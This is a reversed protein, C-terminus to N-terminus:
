TATTIFVPFPLREPVVMLAFPTKFMCLTWFTWITRLAWLTLFTWLTWMTLHEFHWSLRSHWFRGCHWFHGCQRFDGFRGFFGCHQFHIWHRFHRFLGLYGTSKQLRSNFHSLTCICVAARWQWHVIFFKLLLDNRTCLGTRSTASHWPQSPQFTQPNLLYM